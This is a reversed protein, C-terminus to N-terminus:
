SISGRSGSGFAAAARQEGVTNGDPGITVIRRFGEALAPPELKDAMARLVDEPVQRERGCNRELCIEVPVAFYLAEIVCGRARAIEVFPLRHERLLNTANVYSVPQGLDLRVKLLYRLARFVETQFRQENVDDALVVRLQDSSLPVIHHNRFWTSKGCAPLGVALVIRQPEAVPTGPGHLDEAPQWQPRNAPLPTGPMRRGSAENEKM